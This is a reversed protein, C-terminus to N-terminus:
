LAIVVESAALLSPFYCLLDFTLGLLFLHSFKILEFVGEVLQDYLLIRQFLAKLDFKSTYILANCGRCSCLRRLIGHVCLSLFPQSVVAFDETGAELRLDNLTEYSLEAALSVLILGESGTFVSM